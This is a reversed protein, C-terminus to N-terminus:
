SGLSITLLVRLSFPFRTGILFPTGGGEWSYCLPQLPANFKHLIFGQTSAFKVSPCNPPPSGLLILMSEYDGIIALFNWLMGLWKEQNDFYNPALKKGKFRPSVAVVIHRTRLVDDIVHSQSKTIYKKRQLISRFEKSQPHIFQMFRGQHAILWELDVPDIVMRYKAAANELHPKLYPLVSAHLYTSNAYTCWLYNPNSAMSKQKEVPVVRRSHMFQAPSEDDAMTVPWFPHSPPLNKPTSVNHCWLGSFSLINLLWVWQLVNCVKYFKELLVAPCQLGQLGRFLIDCWATAPLGLQCYLGV